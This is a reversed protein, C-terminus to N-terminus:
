KKTKKVPKLNKIRILVISEFLSNVVFNLVCALLSYKTVILISNALRQNVFNIFAAVFLAVVAILLYFYQLKQLRDHKKAWDTLMEKILNWM